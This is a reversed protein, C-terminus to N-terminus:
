AIEDGAFIRNRVHRQDAPDIAPFPLALVDLLKRMELPPKCGHLGPRRDLAPHREALLQPLADIHLVWLHLRDQETLARPCASRPAFWAPPRMARSGAGSGATEKS